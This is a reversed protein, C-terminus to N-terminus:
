PTWRYLWTESVPQTGSQLLLRMECATDTGFDLEFTVRVAKREPYTWVRVNHIAGPQSSLVPKLDPPVEALGDGQFEVAFRRRRAAARGSRTAVVQALNPRAPPTWTWFQRYAFSAEQGAPLPAKPRWYALINKNIESDSPIEILQVAGPGWEGIPEIWLSPRREYRLVDDQFAAFDRDRQLLGFGRPNDDLFASIQLTDPNNLPRWVWEGQGNLISLGAAEYAGPRIDDMTGRVNPGFLFSAGSGGLGVHDLNVRPFLTTEVDVLTTDGPRMTMRVAGTVSESDILGNVVLANTGAAPRELWFARFAPFEEGKPEGPKLTLARAIIGFPQGRGAARFFTAGQVLAFEWPTESSTSLLRFGSFGPDATDSKVPLEGFDFRSKDFAVRRVQGDEVTFLGVRTTFVFGRPLPEAVFGRNEGEWIRGGPLSRIAVYREYNLNAFPEPLDTPPAAFPRKSITRALDTLAAWSFSQGEGLSTRILEGLTNAQAHAPGPLGFAVAGAGLAAAFDRRRLGAGRVKGVFGDTM